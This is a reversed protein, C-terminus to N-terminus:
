IPSPKRPRRMHLGRKSTPPLKEIEHGKDKIGEVLDSAASRIGENSDMMAKSLAPLVNEGGIEGLAEVVMERVEEYSDNLGKALAKIGADGGLFGIEEAAASRVDSDSDQVLVEELYAIAKEKYEDAIQIVADQRVISDSDRM